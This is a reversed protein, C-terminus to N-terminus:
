ESKTLIFLNYLQQAPFLCVRIKLHWAYPKINVSVNYCKPETETM